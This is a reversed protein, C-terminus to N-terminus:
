EVSSLDKELIVLFIMLHWEYAAGLLINILDTFSRNEQVMICLYWYLYPTLFNLIMSPFKM